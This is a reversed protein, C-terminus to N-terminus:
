CCGWYMMMFVKAMPWATMAARTEKGRALAVTKWPRRRLGVPLSDWTAQYSGVQCKESGVHIHVRFPWAWIVLSVSMKGPGISGRVDARAEGDNDVAVGVGAVNVEKDIPVVAGKGEAPAALTQAQLAVVLEIGVTVKLLLCNTAIITGNNADISLPHALLRM